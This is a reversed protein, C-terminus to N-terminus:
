DGEAHVLGMSRLNELSRRASDLSSGNRFHREQEVIVRDVGAEAAASFIGPVDLMGDGVETQEERDRAMDKVHIQRVRGAHKRIYAAPDEGSLYAYFVDLEAGVRAAPTREYLLDLAYADGVKVFEQAHNHYTLMVGQAAATEGAAALREIAADWDNAVDVALSTTVFPSGLAQAYAYTRSAPDLLEPLAAHLGCTRLGLAGLFSALEAPEMGGYVWAFEVARYGMEVLAAVTDRFDRKLVDRVTYLQIAPSFVSVKGREGGKM